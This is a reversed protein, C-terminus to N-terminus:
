KFPSDLKQEFSCVQSKIFDKPATLNIDLTALPIKERKRLQTDLKKADKIFQGLIEVKKSKKDAKKSDKDAKKSDKIRNQNANEDLDPIKHALNSGQGMNLSLNAFRATSSSIKPGVITCESLQSLETTSRQFHTDECQCPSEPADDDALIPKLWSPNGPVKWFRASIVNPEEGVSAVGTCTSSNGTFSTQSNNQAMLELADGPFHGEELGDYQPRSLITYAEFSKVPNISLVPQLKTSM